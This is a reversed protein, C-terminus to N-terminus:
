PALEAARGECREARGVLTDAGTAAAVQDFLAVVKTIPYPKTALSNDLALDVLEAQQMGASDGSYYQFLPELDAYASALLKYVDEEWVPFGPVVELGDMKNWCEIFAAPASGSDPLYREPPPISSAAFAASLSLRALCRRAAPVSLAHMALIPDSGIPAM